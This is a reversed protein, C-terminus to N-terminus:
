TVRACPCISSGARGSISVIAFRPTTDVAIRESLRACVANIAQCFANWM